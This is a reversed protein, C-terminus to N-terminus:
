SSRSGRKERLRRMEDVDWQRRRERKWWLRGLEVLAAGAIGSVLMVIVLAISWEWFFFRLEVDGSNQLAPVFVILVVLALVLMLWPFGRQDLDEAENETHESQSRM